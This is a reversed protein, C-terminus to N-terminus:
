EVVLDVGLGYSDADISSVYFQTDDHVFSVFM